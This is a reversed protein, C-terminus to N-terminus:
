YILKSVGFTEVYKQSKTVQSKLVKLYKKYNLYIPLHSYPYHICNIM